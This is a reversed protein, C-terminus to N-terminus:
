SAASLHEQCFARTDQCPARSQLAFRRTIKLAFRRTNLRPTRAELLRLKPEGKGPRMGLSTLRSFVWKAVRHKSTTLASAEQYAARRRHFLLRRRLPRDTLSLEPWPLM